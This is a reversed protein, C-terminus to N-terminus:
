PVGHRMHAKSCCRAALHFFVRSWIMSAAFPGDNWAYKAEAEIIAMETLRAVNEPMMIRATAEEVRQLMALASNSMTRQRYLKVFGRVHAHNFECRYFDQALFAIDCITSNAFFCLGPIWSATCLCESKTTMSRARRAFRVWRVRWLSRCISSTYVRGLWLRQCSLRSSETLWPEM